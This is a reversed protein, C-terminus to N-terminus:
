VCTMFICLAGLSTSSSELARYRTFQLKLKNKKKTKKTRTVLVQNSNLRYAIYGLAIHVLTLSGHKKVHFLHLFM